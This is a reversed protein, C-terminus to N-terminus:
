VKRSGRDHGEAPAQHDGDDAQHGHPQHGDVDDCQGRQVREQHAPHVALQGRGGLLHGTQDHPGLFVVSRQLEALDLRVHAGVDVDLDEVGLSIGM